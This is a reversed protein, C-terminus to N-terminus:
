YTYGEVIQVDLGGGVFSRANFSSTVVIRQKTGDPFVLKFTKDPLDPDVPQDTSLRFEFTKGIFQVHIDQAIIVGNKELSAKM